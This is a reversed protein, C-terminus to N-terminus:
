QICEWTSSKLKWKLDGTDLGWTTKKNKSSEQSSASYQVCYPFDHHIVCNIEHQDEEELHSLKDQWRM